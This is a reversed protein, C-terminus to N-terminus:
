KPLFTWRPHKVPNQICKHKVSTHRTDCNYVSFFVMKCTSRRTVKNIVQNHPLYKTYPIIPYLFFPRKYNKVENLSM